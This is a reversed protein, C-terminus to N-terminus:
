LINVIPVTFFLFLLVIQSFVTFFDFLRLMKRKSTSYDTYRRIAAIGTGLKGAGM